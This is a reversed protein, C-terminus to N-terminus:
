DIHKCTRCIAYTNFGLLLEWRTRIYDPNQCIQKLSEHHINGFIHNSCYDNCCLLANGHVEFNMERFAMCGEIDWRNDKTTPVDVMGGRNLKLPANFMPVYRVSYIEPTSLRIEELTAILRPDPEQTHQSIVFQAVGARMLSFHRQRTLLIGNTYIIIAAAPLKGHIYEVFRELRDDTLPEGYFHPCIDGNFGPRYDALSDVIRFFTEDRMLEIPRGVTSNPCYSCSLNCYTTTEISVSQLYDFPKTFLELIDMPTDLFIEPVSLDYGQGSIAATRLLRPTFVLMNPDLIRFMSMAMFVKSLSGKVNFISITPFYRKLLGSEIEEDSYLWVPIEKGAAERTVENLPGIVLDIRGLLDNKNYDTFDPTEIVHAQKPIKRLINSPLTGLVTCATNMMMFLSMSQVFLLFDHAETEITVNRAFLLNFSYTDDISM